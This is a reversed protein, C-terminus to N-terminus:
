GHDDFIIKLKQRDGWFWTTNSVIPPKYWNPILVIVVTQLFDLTERPIESPITKIRTTEYHVRIEIEIVIKQLVVISSKFWTKHTNMLIHRITTENSLIPLRSPSFRIHKAFYNLLHRPTSEFHWCFTPTLQHRNCDSNENHKENNQDPIFNYCYENKAIENAIQKMITASSTNGLSIIPM